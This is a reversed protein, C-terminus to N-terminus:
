PMVDLSDASHSRVCNLFAAGFREIQAHNLGTKTLGKQSAPRARTINDIAAESAVMLPNVGVRRALNRREDLLARKLAMDIRQESVPENFLDDIAGQLPKASSTGRNMVDLGRSTLSLSGNKLSLLGHSSTHALVAWLKPQAYHKLAGYEKLRTLGARILAVDHVGLLVHCAQEPTMPSPSNNVMTLVTQIATPSVADDQARSEISKTVGIAKCRDCQGCDKPNLDGFHELLMKMRCKKTKAFTLMSELNGEATRRQDALDRLDIPAEPNKIEISWTEYTSGQTYDIQGCHKLRRLLAEDQFQTAFPIGRTVNTRHMETKGKGQRRYNSHLARVSEVRPHNGDIFFRQLREDAGHQFFMMGRAPNGDRGGRGVEQYYNELSAPVNYHIVERIDAKDIGMGFANTAVIVDVEGKIFLEQNRERTAPDLKGNYIVVSRGSKSVTQAIEPMTKITASYIITPEGKPRSNLYDLLAIDKTESRDLTKVMLTLNDRAYGLMFQAPNNLGLQKVVDDRVSPTATATLAVRSIRKGTSKGISDLAEPLRRYALRFDHGWVSICHAEDVAVFSIPIQELSRLFWDSDFREPAIYLLKYEGRRAAALTQNVEEYSMNSNLAAAPIGKALLTDVQDKMLAILPSIVLATGPLCMAPVQFCLSKGGGTRMAVFSDQGSVVSDIVDEQGDRFSDYGFYKQLVQIPTLTKM